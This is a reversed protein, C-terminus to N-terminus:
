PIIIKIFLKIFRYSALVSLTIIFFILIQLFDKFPFLFNVFMFEYILGIIISYFSLWIANKLYKKLLDYTGTNTRIARIYQNDMTNIITLVTILFGLLIGFISIGNAIYKNFDLNCNSGCYLLMVTLFFSGVIPYYIEWIARISYKM